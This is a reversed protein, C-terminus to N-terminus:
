DASLSRPTSCLPSPRLVPRLVGQRGLLPSPRASAANQFTSDPQPNQSRGPYLHGSPPKLLKTAHAWVSYQLLIFPCPACKIALKCSFFGAVMSDKTTRADTHHHNHLSRGTVGARRTHLNSALKKVKLAWHFSM